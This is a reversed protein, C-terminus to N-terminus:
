DVKTLKTNTVHKGWSANYTHISLTTRGQKDKLPYGQNAWEFISGYLNFVNKYGAKRMSTAIKESRYGISCYVIITKDKSIDKITAIDFKDYGVFRAQPIHSVNYESLERADLFIYKSQNTYALKVDMVPATYSLHDNVVADFKPDICSATKSYKQGVVLTIVVFLTLISLAFKRFLTKM